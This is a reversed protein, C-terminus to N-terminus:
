QSCQLNTSYFFVFNKFADSAHQFPQFTYVDMPDKGVQHCNPHPVSHLTLSDAEVAATGEWDYALMTANTVNASGPGFSDPDDDRKLERRAWEYKGTSGWNFKKNFWNFTFLWAHNDASLQVKWNIQLKKSKRDPAFFLWAFKACPIAGYVDIEGSPKWPPHEGPINAKQDDIYPSIGTASQAHFFEHAMVHERSTLYRVAYEPYHTQELKSLSSVAWDDFFRPCFIIVSGRGTLGNSYTTATVGQKKCRDGDSNKMDHWKCTLTIRKRQEMSQWGSRGKTPFNIVRNFNDIIGMYMDRFQPHEWNKHTDDNGGIEQNQVFFRNWGPTHYIDDKDQEMFPIVAKLTEVLINFETDSCQAAAEEFYIGRYEMQLDQARSARKALSHSSESKREHPVATSPGALFLCAVLLFNLIGGMHHM